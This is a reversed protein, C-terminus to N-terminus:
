DDWGSWRSGFRPPPPGDLLGDLWDMNGSENLQRAQDPTLQGTALLMAPLRVMVLTIRLANLVLHWDLYEAPRGILEQWLNIADRRSGFGAPRPLGRATTVAHDTYTWWALDCEPGALSVMDWDLVAAVSTGQYIINQPRADGWSFGPPAGQPLNTVLWESARKVMPLEDGGCWKAYALWHNLEQELGTRGLNPRALFSFEAPDLGHLEAMVEIAGRWLEHQSQPPLEVVWGSVNFPPNDPPVQGEVREMVFFPQGFVRTDPEYGVVPPSPIQPEQSLKEYILYHTKVDMGMFLHETAGVRMVYSAEEREGNLACTASIMLTENAVGATDPQDVKHVELDDGVRRRLWAEIAPRVAGMDRLRVKTPIDVYEVAVDDAM